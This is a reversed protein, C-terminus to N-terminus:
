RTWRRLRRRVTRALQALPAIQKASRRLRLYAGFAHGRATIPAFYESVAITQDSWDQKYRDSGISFDYVAVGADFCWRLVHNQLQTGVSLREWEGHEHGCFLAAMWGDALLAWHTALIEDGSILASLHVLGEDLCDSAVRTYFRRYRELAFFDTTDPTAQWRQSKQDMMRATIRLATDPDRAVVFRTEAREALRRARRASDKRVGRPVQTHYYTEWDGALTAQYSEEQLKGGLRSFPNEFDGLSEPQRDLHMADFRPLAQQVADWLSAFRGVAEPGLLSRSLLPAQFNNVEQGLWVLICTGHDLRIGLPLLALPEGDADRVSVICPRVGSPEGLEEYWRSLWAYRQYPYGVCAAEARRWADAAEAFDSFVDIQDLDLAPAAPASTM